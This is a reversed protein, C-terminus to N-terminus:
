QSLVKKLYSVQKETAYDKRAALVSALDNLRANAETRLVPTEALASRFAALASEPLSKHRVEARYISSLHENLTM